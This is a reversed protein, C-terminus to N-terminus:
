ERHWGGNGADVAHVEVVHRFQPPGQTIRDHERPDDARAAPKVYLEFLGVPKSSLREIDNFSRIQIRGKVSWGIAGASWVSRSRDSGTDRVFGYDATDTKVM